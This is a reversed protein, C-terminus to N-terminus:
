VRQLWWPGDAVRWGSAVPHGAVAPACHTM